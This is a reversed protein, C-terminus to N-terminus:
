DAPAATTAEAAPELCKALAPDRAIKSRYARAEAAQLTQLKARVTSCSVAATDATAEGSGPPRTTTATKTTATARTATSTTATSGSTVQDPEGVDAGRAEDERPAALQQAGGVARHSEERDLQRERAPM